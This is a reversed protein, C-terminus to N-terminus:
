KDRCFYDFARQFDHILEDEYWAFKCEMEESATDPIMRDNAYVIVERSNRSVRRFFRAMADKSENERNLDERTVQIPWHERKQFVQAASFPLRSLKERRRSSSAVPQLQYSTVMPSNRPQPIPSPRVPSVM